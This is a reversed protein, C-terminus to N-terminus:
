YGKGPSNRVPVRFYARDADTMECNKIADIQAQRIATDLGAQSPTVAAMIGAGGCASVVLSAYFWVMKINMM